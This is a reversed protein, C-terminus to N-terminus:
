HLLNRLVIFSIIKIRVEKREREKLNLISQLFCLSCFFFFILSEGMIGGGPSLWQSCNVYVRGSKDLDLILDYQM